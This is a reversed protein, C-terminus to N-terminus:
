CMGASGTGLGPGRCQRRRATGRGALGAGAPGLTLAPGLRQQCLPWGLAVVAPGLLLPHVACGCLVHTATGHGADCQGSHGGVGDGSQGLTRAPRVSLAQALVYVALTATLGFLPASALYVWLEVFNAM